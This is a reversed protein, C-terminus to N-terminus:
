KMGDMNQEGPLVAGVVFVMRVERFEGTTVLDWVRTACAQLSCSNSCIEEQQVRRCSHVCLTKQRKGAAACMRSMVAADLCNVLMM